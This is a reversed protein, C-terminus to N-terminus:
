LHRAIREALDAIERWTEAETHDDYEEAVAARERLVRPADRGYREVMDRAVKGAAKKSDM